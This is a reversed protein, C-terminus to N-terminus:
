KDQYDLRSFFLAKFGMQSFLSATAAQHGFPDIHWAVTPVYGFTKKLWRLGVVMNDVFDDYYTTAEDSACWGANAFQLQGNAVLAKM